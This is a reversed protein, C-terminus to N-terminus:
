KFPFAGMQQPNDYFNVIWDNSVLKDPNGSLIQGDVFLMNADKGKNHPKGARHAPGNDVPVLDSTQSFHDTNSDTIQSSDIAVLITKRLQSKRRYFFKSGGGAYFRNDGLQQNYTYDPVIRGNADPPHQTAPCDLMAKVKEGVANILPDKPDTTYPAGFIVGLELVGYWRSWNTSIGEAGCREPMMFGDWSTEYISVAQYLSRLNASCKVTQARDKARGLSPLLIAILVAIIAVVVLLEILTFARRANM